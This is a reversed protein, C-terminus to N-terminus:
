DLRVVAARRRRTRDVEYGRSTRTRISYPTQQQGAAAELRSPQPQLWCRTASPLLAVSTQHTWGVSKLDTNTNSVTRTTFPMHYLTDESNQQAM